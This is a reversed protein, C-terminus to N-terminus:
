GGSLITMYLSRGEGLENIRLESHSRSGVALGRGVLDQTGQFPQAGVEGQRALMATPTLCIQGLLETDRPLSDHMHLVALGRDRGDHLPKM